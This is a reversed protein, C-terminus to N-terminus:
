RRWEHETVRGSSGPAQHKSVHEVIKAIKILLDNQIVALLRAIKVFQRVGSARGLSMVWEAAILELQEQIDVSVEYLVDTEDALTAADGLGRSGQQRLM